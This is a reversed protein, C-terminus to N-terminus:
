TTAKDFRKRLGTGSTEDYLQHSLSHDTSCDGFSSLQYTDDSITLQRSRWKIIITPAEFFMQLNANGPLPLEEAFKHHGLRLSAFAVAAAIPNCGFEKLKGELVQAKFLRWQAALDNM